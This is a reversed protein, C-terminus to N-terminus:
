QLRMMKSVKKRVKKLYTETSLLGRLVVESAVNVKRFDMLEAIADLYGIHGAHGLKWEDQM